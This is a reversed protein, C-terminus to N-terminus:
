GSFQEDAPEGPEMAVIVRAPRLLRGNLEYGKQVVTLISGPEATNSQQMSMAEHLEPNFREGEPDVESVGHQELASRLLNLTAEKGALLDEVAANAGAELGAELSDLVILLEGALKEVGYKRANEQDRAARKRVNELEAATRLYRNWNDEAKALAESLPNEPQDAGSPADGDPDPAPSASEAETKSSPRGETQNSM